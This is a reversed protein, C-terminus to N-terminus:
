HENHLIPTLFRQLKKIAIRLQTDVTKVTIELIAAVEKYSMGDEKILKFVLKCRPPLENIAREVTRRMEESILISEPDPFLSFHSVELAEADVPVTMSKTRLYNLSANKVSVYLFININKVTHLKNRTQWIRLFVDNVLEEAVEKSKVYTFSFQFLRFVHQHFLERFASQDDFYQIRYLLQQM